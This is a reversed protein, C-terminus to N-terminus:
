RLKIEVNEIDAFEANENQRITFNLVGKVNLIYEISIYQGISNEYKNLLTPIETEFSCTVLSFDHIIKFTPNSILIEEFFSPEFEGIVKENFLLNPNYEKICSSIGDNLDNKLEEFAFQEIRRENINIACWIELEDEVMMKNLSGVNLLLEKASKFVSLQPLEAKLQPHLDKAKDDYFDRINATLFYCNSLNNDQIHKKYTLWIICDRFEQKNRSFPKIEKISRYIVEDLDDRDFEIQEILGPILSDLYSIFDDYYADVTKLDINLEVDIIKNLTEISKNLNNLKEKLTDKYNETLESYVVDSIFLNIRSSNALSILSSNFRNKEFPDTFFINTDIFINPINSM